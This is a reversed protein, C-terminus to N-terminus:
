VDRRNPAIQSVDRNFIRIRPDSLPWGMFTQYWALARSNVAPRPDKMGAFVDYRVFAASPKLERGSLRPAGEAPNWCFAPSEGSSIRLELLEVGAKAAANAVASLNPDHKGSAVFM